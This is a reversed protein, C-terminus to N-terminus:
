APLPLPQIMLHIDKLDCIKTTTNTLELGTEEKIERRLTDLLKEGPEVGGGPLNTATRDKVLIVGDRSEIVAYISTRQVLDAKAVIHTKGNIDRCLVRNM